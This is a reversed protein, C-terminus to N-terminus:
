RTDDYIERVWAHPVSPELVKPKAIQAQLRALVLKEQLALEPRMMKALQWMSYLMYATCLVKTVLDLTELWDGRGTKVERIHLPEEPSDGHV